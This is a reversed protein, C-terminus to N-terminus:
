YSCNLRGMGYSTKIKITAMENNRSESFHIKLQGNKLEDDTASLNIVGDAVM